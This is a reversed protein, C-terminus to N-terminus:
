HLYGLLDTLSHIIVLGDTAAHPGASNLPSQHSKDTRELIFASTFGNQLPAKGDKVVDDGVFFRQACTSAGTLVAKYVEPNPKSVGVDYSTMCIDVFHRLQLTELLTVLRPDMNSLVALKLGDKRRHQLEELCTIADPFVHYRDADNAFGDYLHQQLKEFNRSSAVKKSLGATMFTEKIITYWWEKSSIGGSHGFTPYQNDMKKVTQRFSVDMLDPEFSVDSEMSLYMRFAETYQKGISQKPRLLTGFVDIKTLKTCDDYWLRYTWRSGIENL